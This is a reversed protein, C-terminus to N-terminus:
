RILTGDAAIAYWVDGSGQGNVDGSDADGAFTYAPWRGIVTQSSGDAREIRSADVDLSSDFSVGGPIPPWAEACADNCVSQTPSDNLFAYLTLGESNTLVDGISTAGTTIDAQQAAPAPRSGSAAEVDPNSAVDSAEIVSWTGPTGVAVGNTDGPNEDGAFTYLPQGHLTLQTTGDARSLQGFQDPDIKPDTGIDGPVPPWTDSCPDLCNSVGDEDNAFTYVTFGDDEILVDGSDTSGIRVAPPTLVEGESSVAFWVDGIGQGEIDGPKQDDIYTYLPIGNLAVQESGDQRLITELGTVQPSLDGSETVPPWTDSCPENCNSVGVPDNAFAYVTLGDSATMVQGIETDVGGAADLAPASEEDGEAAAEADDDPEAAGSGGDLGILSGDPAVAFWVGASEQGNIDGPGADGAFTYLPWRGAVRLQETGDPRSISDFGAGDLGAVVSLGGDAPPWATACTEFCTSVGEVDDTFGYLTLGTPDVLVEGVGTQATSVQGGVVSAVDAGSAQESEGDGCGMMLLGLGM